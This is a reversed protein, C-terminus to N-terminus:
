FHHKDESYARICFISAPSGHTEHIELTLSQTTVVSNLIVRALSRHWSKEEHLVKGHEDKLCWHKVCTPSINDPHGWQASEMAHDWDADFVIEVTKIKQPSNWTATITPISDDPKACWANTKSTPRQLGNRVSELEFPQIPTSFELALNQGAPRRPPCWFDYDHGGVDSGIHRFRKSLSLFGSCRTESSRIELDEGSFAIIAYSPCEIDVPIVIPGLKHEGTQIEISHAWLEKEPSYEDPRHPLHLSITLTSPSAARAEFSLDPLSGAEIPLLQALGKGTSVWPGDSPFAQIAWTSSAKLDALQILDRDEILARGPVWQGNRMLRNQLTSVLEDDQAIDKLSVGKEKSLASLTAVAQGGLACTGMVRTTGFAVHSSSIIRGAVMLNNMGKPLYCGLPISYIGKAHLHSSGAREAYVGDAPHLDISWGGHAVADSFIRREVVDRQVLTQIGEFRRSERKGPVTGVWELTLNEAEPFQGSNKIHDWVGYVIKWLEWKIDETDHVPNLRGGYEIWWLSCGATKANFQRYRPIETIDKLAFEPATFPVPTGVDKSYFYISQGLLAGFEEDPAFGEGYTKEDEAGMRFPAGSSFALVGDGSADIFHDASIRYRTENQSCHALVSDITGETKLESGICPTNLLLTIHDEKRVTELLLADWIIPNGMPNRWLNEEMLEGVVGGERAWRNNNGMHATAGLVWLRVESSSNGGLVPRDHVLVVKQGLRASTIAACVGALGGGVICLDTSLEKLLLERGRPEHEKLILPNPSM